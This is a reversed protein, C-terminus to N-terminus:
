SPAARSRDPERDIRRGSKASFFHASAADISLSAQDGPTCRAGPAVRAVITAGSATRGSVDTAHGLREVATVTVTIMGGDAVTAGPALPGRLDHPRIGLVIEGAGTAAGEALAAAAAVEPSLAVTVGAGDTFVLRGGERALRGTVFSMPAPGFFSAVFRDAPRGYVELPPGVQRIAGACMVAVRDGLAMAEHQDHTVHLATVPAAGHLDRLLARMEARLAPDLNSLPEDYLAVTPGRVLVRGLAARQAEGGSLGGPRRELLPALGLRQAAALVRRHVEGKPLRLGRLAFALNAAVTMHPYLPFDQFVIAVNREHPSRRNVIAGGISVTGSAPRDLGAVLRLLTTKGCGSPGVIAMREGAAVDLTVDRVAVVEARGRGRFVRRLEHLALPCATM